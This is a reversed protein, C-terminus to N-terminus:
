PRTKCKLRKSRTSSTSAVRRDQAKAHGEGKAKNGGYPDSHVVSATAPMPGFGAPLDRLAVQQRQTWPLPRTVSMEEDGDEEQQFEPSSMGGFAALWADFSGQQSGKLTERFGMAWQQPSRPAPLGTPPAGPTAVSAAGAQQLEEQRLRSQLQEAEAVLGKWEETAAAQESQKIEWIKNLSLIEEALNNVTHLAVSRAAEVQRLRVRTPKLKKLQARVTDAQLVKASIVPELADDPLMKRLGAIQKQLTELKSQLKTREDSEGAGVESKAPSAASSEQKRAESRVPGCLRDQEALLAAKFTAGADKKPAKKAVAGKQQKTEWAWAM